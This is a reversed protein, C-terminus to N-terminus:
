HEGKAMLTQIGKFIHVQQVDSAIWIELEEGAIQVSDYAALISYNLLL